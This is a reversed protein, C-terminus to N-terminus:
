VSERLFRELAEKAIKINEYSSVDIDPCGNIMASLNKGGPKFLCLVPIDEVVARSIEFGVGLSPTTVEAILCDAQELWEIDREFIEQDTETEEFKEVDKRGVHETLVKGLDKLHKVLDRYTEFNERGGRISAAFYIKPEEM